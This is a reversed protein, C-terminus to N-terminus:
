EGKGGERREEVLTSKTEIDFSLSLSAMTKKKKKKKRRRGGEMMMLVFHICTERVVGQSGM